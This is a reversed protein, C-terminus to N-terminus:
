LKKCSKKINESKKPCNKSKKNLIRTIQRKIEKINKTNMIMSLKKM